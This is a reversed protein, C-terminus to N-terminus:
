IQYVGRALAVGERLGIRRGCEFIMAMGNDSKIFDVLAQQTEPTDNAYNAMSLEIYDLLMQGTLM